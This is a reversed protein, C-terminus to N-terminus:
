ARPWTPSPVTCPRRRRWTWGGNACGNSSPATGCWGTRRHVARQVGESVARAMLEGLASHGDSSAERRGPGEVVIISDTGTGTAQRAGSAASSRIDLDQLAASTAETATVLARPSLQLNTLLLINIKGATEPPLISHHIIGVVRVPAARGTRLLLCVLVLGPCRRAYPSAQM